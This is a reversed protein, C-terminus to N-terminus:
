DPGTPDYYTGLMVFQGDRYRGQNAGCGQPDFCFFYGAITGEGTLDSYRGTGGALRFSGSFVVEEATVRHATAEFDVYIRDRTSDPIGDTTPGGQLQCVTWSIRGKLRGSEVTFELPHARTSAPSRSGPVRTNYTPLDSSINNVPANGSCPISRYIFTGDSQGDWPKVDTAAPWDPTHVMVVASFQGRVGTAPEPRPNVAGGGPLGCGWTLLLFVLLGLPLSPRM